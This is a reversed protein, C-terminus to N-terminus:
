QTPTPAKGLLDVQHGNVDAFVRFRITAAHDIKQRLAVIAPLQGLRRELREAAHGLNTRQVDLRRLRELAARVTYDRNAAETPNNLQINSLRNIEQELANCDDNVANFKQRTTEFEGPLKSAMTDIHSNTFPITPGEAGGDVIVPRVSLIRNGYEGSLTLRIEIRPDAARLILRLPKSTEVNIAGPIMEPETPFGSLELIELVTAATKPVNVDEIPLNRVEKDLDVVLPSLSRPGDVTAAKAAPESPGLLSGHRPSSAAVTAASSSPSSSAPHTQQSPSTVAGNVQTWTPQLTAPAARNAPNQEPRSTTRPEEGQRSVAIPNQPSPSQSADPPGVPEFTPLGASTAANAGASTQLPTTAVSPGDFWRIALWMLGMVASIPMAIALIVVAVKKRADRRALAPSKPLIGLAALNAAPSPIEEAAPLAEDLLSEVSSRSLADLAPTNRSESSLRPPSAEDRDPTLGFSEPTVIAPGVAGARPGEDYSRKTAPDLLCQRASELEYLTRRALRANSGSLLKQLKAIQLGAAKEIQESSSEAPDLGLLQYMTLPRQKQQIGLWDRYPDLPTELTQGSAM